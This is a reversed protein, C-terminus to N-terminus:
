TIATPGRRLGVQTSTPLPLRRQTSAGLGDDRPYRRIPIASKWPFYYRYEPPQYKAYLEFDGGSYANIQKQVFDTLLAANTPISLSGGGAWVEATNIFGVRPYTAFDLDTETVVVAPTWGFAFSTGPTNETMPGPGPTVGITAYSGLSGPWAGPVYSALSGAAIDSPPVLLTLIDQALIDTGAAAEAEGLTVSHTSIGNYHGLGSIGISPNGSKTIAKLPGTPGTGFEAQAAVWVAQPVWDVEDPIWYPFVEAALNAAVYAVDCTVVFLEFDWGYVDPNPQPNVEAAAVMWSFGFLFSVPPSGVPNPPTPNIGPYGSVVVPGWWWNGYNAGGAGGAIQGWHIFDQSWQEAATLWPGPSLLSLPESFPFGDTGDVNFDYYGPGFASPTASGSTPVTIQLTGPDIITFPCALGGISVATTTDLDSGFVTYSDGGVLTEFFNVQDYSFCPDDGYDVLPQIFYVFPM